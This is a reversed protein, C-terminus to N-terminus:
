IHCAYWPFGGRRTRRFHWSPWNLFIIKSSCVNRAHDRSYSQGDVLPNTSLGSQITGLTQRLFAISARGSRPTGFKGTENLYDCSRQKLFLCRLSILKTSFNKLPWLSAYLHVPETVGLSKNTSSLVCVPYAAKWHREQPYREVNNTRGQVM